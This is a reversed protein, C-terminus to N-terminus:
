EWMVGCMTDCDSSMVGILKLKLEMPVPLKRPFSYLEQPSNSGEWPPLHKYCDKVHIVLSWFVGNLREM